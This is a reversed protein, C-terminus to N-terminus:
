SLFFHIEQRCDLMKLFFCGKIQQNLVKIKQNLVRKQDQFEKAGFEADKVASSFKNKMKHQEDASRKMEIEAQQLQEKLLNIEGILQNKSMKKQEASTSAGDTESYESDSMEIQGDSGGVKKRLEDNQKELNDIHNLAEELSEGLRLKQDEIDKFEIELKELRKKLVKKEEDNALASAATEAASSKKNSLSLKKNNDKEVSLKDNLILIESELDSAM